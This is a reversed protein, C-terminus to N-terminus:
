VTRSKPKPTGPFNVKGLKRQLFFVVIWPMIAAFITVSQVDVLFSLLWLSFMNGLAHFIICLFISQTHNYLWAYIYTIGILSITQGVLGVFITIGTQAPSTNQMWCLWTTGYALVLYIILSFRRSKEYNNGIM